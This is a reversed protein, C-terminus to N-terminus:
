LEITKRRSYSSLIEPREGYGWVYSLAEYQGKLQSLSSTYMQEVLPQEDRDEGLRVTSPCLGIVRIHEPQDLSCHNYLDGPPQLDISDVQLGLQRLHSKVDSAAM